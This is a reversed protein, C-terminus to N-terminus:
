KTIELFVRGFIESQSVTGVSPNRSDISYNRNDGMVFYEHEGLIIPNNAIGSDNIYTEIDNKLKEGNIYVSGDLIQVTDGPTGIVRKILLQGDNKLTVVDFRKYEKTIKEVFLIQGSHYTPSMSSGSVRVCQGVFMLFFSMIIITVLITKWNALPSISDATLSNNSSCTAPQTQTKKTNDKQIYPMHHKRSDNISLTGREEKTSIQSIQQM